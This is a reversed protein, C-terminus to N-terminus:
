QIGDAHRSNFKIIHHVFGFLDNILLGITQLQKYAEHNRPDLVEPPNQTKRNKGM